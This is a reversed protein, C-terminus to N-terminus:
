LALWLSFSQSSSGGHKLVTVRQSELQVGIGLARILVRVGGDVMGHDNNAAARNTQRRRQVKPPLANRHDQQVIVFTDADATAGDTEGLARQFDRVAVPAARRHQVFAHDPVHALHKVVVPLDILEVEQGLVAVAVGGEDVQLLGIEFPEQKFLDHGLLFVARGDVDTAFVAHIRHRILAIMNGQVDGRGVAGVRDRRIPQNGAVPGRRWQARHHPQIKVPPHKLVTEQDGVDAHCGLTKRGLAPEPKLRPEFGTGRGQQMFLGVIHPTDVKLDAPVYIALFFQFLVVDARADVRHQAIIHFIVDDPGRDVRELAAPHFLEAMAAHDKGTVGRMLHRGKARPTRIRPHLVHIVKAPFQAKDQVAGCGLRQQVAIM